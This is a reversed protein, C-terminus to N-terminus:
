ITYTKDQEVVAIGEGLQALEAATEDAFQPKVHYILVPVDRPLKKRELRVRDPTMHRSVKALAELRNPFACELLVARIGPVDRAAKWLAETPATDGSYVFGSVGDHVIFGAAPVTHDVPVAIVELEGFRRSEGPALATYTVAPCERPITSFDPWIVNNFIGTRVADVVPALGALTIARRVDSTAFMEVLYAAGVLHDLHAHTLFIQEIGLQEPLALAGAVSGADVLTRDNVLFSSPRQGPGESGFAGLVRINM